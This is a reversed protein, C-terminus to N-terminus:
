DATLWDYKWFPNGCHQCKEGNELLRGHCAHCDAISPLWTIQRKRTEEARPHDGFALAVAISIALPLLRFMVLPARGVEPLVQQLRSLFARRRDDASREAYFALRQVVAPPEAMDALRLRAVWNMFWTDDGSVYRNERADLVGEVIQYIEIEMNTNAESKLVAVPLLMSDMGFVREVDGHVRNFFADRLLVLGDGLSNTVRTGDDRKEHRDFEAAAEARRKAREEASMSDNERTSERGNSTLTRASARWRRGRTSDTRRIVQFV